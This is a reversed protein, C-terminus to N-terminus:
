AFIQGGGVSTHVKPRRRLYKPLQIVKDGEGEGILLYQLGECIHSYMNKDPKDHFREDGTVQVRKFKYGGRLGKRLQRCKPSIVLQPQGNAVLTTSCKAVAERRITFDNTYTPILPIGESTVIDFPTREDTQARQEGAPDGWGIVASKNYISKLDAALVKSFRKAGMSDSWYEAFVRYQGTGRMKHSLVAAPTLGFDMGIYIDEGPLYEVEELCQIDDNYEPIVPKGDMISGYKGHVFVNIWEKDHGGMLRTYYKPPLNEKNEAEPSLGSPQAFQMWDEPREEEFIRYWWHDEDPSNTDMILGWWTPGGNRKNPYRGVRGQIMDIVIKPVEKAENVWAGTLELSLLKSVDEPRDLARFLFEVEVDNFKLVCTMSGQHWKCLHQPIWDKFTNITTDQLERYTNRIVAWRSHRIGDPGPQQEMGKKLMEVVMGVSKGSGIPGRIGRVFNDNAHFKALTPAAIYDISSM